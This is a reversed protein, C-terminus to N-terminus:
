ELMIARQADRLLYRFGGSPSGRFGVQFQNMVSAGATVDL